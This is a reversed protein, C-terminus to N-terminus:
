IVLDVGDWIEFNYRKYKEQYQSRITKQGM